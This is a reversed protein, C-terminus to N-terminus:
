PREYVIKGNFLTLVVRTAAIDKPDISFINRDTVILDAKKGVILSGTVDGMGSTAAPTLTYGQVAQDVTLCQDPYWGKDPTHDMRRRTVASFIGAFPNPDAVPADSSFMTPIGTELINKFNYAYKGRKGVCQDIMSIDLSMNNPQCSVALNKLRKLTELDRPLIMQAHEMRHPIRCASQNLAEVGAFVSLVEHVARDGVAHVMCSLGARDAQVVAQEIEQIPTLPMGYAADLYPETMWATRAGMGGDSFFKLHGIRLMDDGFGSCLGLDIAQRTMEGPLAVHCRLTLKGAAHLAQWAQLAVAGEEGGMLRIDHIGTLGLAHAKAMAKEMNELLNEFTLAPLVNRILNPAMEKLVGTPIGTGDRVIVGDPPDPATSDIGALSLARSNAVALHLDCRWICVPNDPAAMDLDLRDPMRNEPWDSENFGQGLIWHDPGLLRSKERIATEMGAFNRTQAFDISNLNVAWEYFHFHTDIFGPLVLKQNLNLIRITPGAMALITKDDGLAMIRNGATALATVSAGHGSGVSQNKSFRTHGPSYLTANHLILDPTM